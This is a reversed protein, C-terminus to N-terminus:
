CLTRGKNRKMNHFEIGPFPHGFKADRLIHRVNRKTDGSARKAPVGYEDFVPLKTENNVVDFFWGHCPTFGHRGDHATGTPSEEAPSEKAVCCKSHTFMVSCLSSNFRAKKTAFELSVGCSCEIVIEGNKEDIHDLKLGFADALLKVHNQPEKLDVFDHVSLKFPPPLNSSGGEESERADDVGSRTMIGDPDAALGAKAADRKRKM